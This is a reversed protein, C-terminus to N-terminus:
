ALIFKHVDYILTERPLITFSLISQQIIIISKRKIANFKDVHRDYSSMNFCTISTTENIIQYTDLSYNVKSM